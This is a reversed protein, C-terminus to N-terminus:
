LTEAGAKLRQLTRAINESNVAKRDPVGTALLAIGLSAVEFAFQSGPHADTVTSVTSWRRFGRRNSGRFKTGVTATTAGNLLTCHGTEEALEGLSAVDSILGYVRDPSANVEIRGTASPDTM